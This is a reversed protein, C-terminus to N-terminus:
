HAKEVNSDSIFLLGTFFGVIFDNGERIAGSLGQLLLSPNSKSLAVPINDMLVSPENIYVSYAASGAALDARLTKVDQKSLSQCEEKRYRLADSIHAFRFGLQIANSASKNELFLKESIQKLNESEVVQTAKENLQFNAHKLIDTVTVQSSIADSLLARTTSPANVTIM